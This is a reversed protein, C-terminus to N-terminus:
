SRRDAFGGFRAWASFITSIRRAIVRDSHDDRPYVDGLAFVEAREGGGSWDRRALDGHDGTGRTAGPIGRAPEGRGAGNRWHIEWRAPDLLVFYHLRARLGGTGGGRDALTNGAFIWIAGCADTGGVAGTGRHGCLSSRFAGM